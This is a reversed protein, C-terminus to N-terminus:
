MKISEVRRGLLKAFPYEDFATFTYIGNSGPIVWFLNCMFINITNKKTKEGEGKKKTVATSVEWVIWRNLTYWEITKLINLKCGDGCDITFYNWWFPVGFSKGIM